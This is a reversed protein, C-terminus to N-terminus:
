ATFKVGWIGHIRPSSHGSLGAVKLNTTSTLVFEVARLTGVWFPPSYYVGSGIDSYSPLFVYSTVTKTTSSTYSPNFEIIILDFNTVASTLSYNGGVSVNTEGRLQTVSRSHTHGDKSVLTGLIYIDKNFYFYPRDTYIHGYGTNAPGFTITGYATQSTNWSSANLTDHTHSSPPFSSPISTLSSYSHTHSSPPFTSPVGVLDGWKLKGQLGYATNTIDDVRTTTDETWGSPTGEIIPDILTWRDWGDFQELLFARTYLTFSPNECYVQLKAGGYVRDATNYLIRMHAITRTSYRNGGLALTTNQGYATTAIIKVFNHRSGQNDWVFFEGYARATDAEAITVWNTSAVGFSKIDSLSKTIDPANLINNWDVSSASNSPIGDKLKRIMRYSYEIKEKDTLFANVM